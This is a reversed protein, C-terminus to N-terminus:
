VYQTQAGKSSPSHTIETTYLIFDIFLESNLTGYEYNNISMIRNQDSLMSWSNMMM